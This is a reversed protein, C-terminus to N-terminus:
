DGTFLYTGVAHVLFAVGFVAYGWYQLVEVYPVFAGLVLMWVGGLYFPLRDRRSIREAKLVAGAVLFALGLLLLFHSFFYAGRVAGETNNAIIDGVSTWLAFLAAVFAGTVVRWDVGEVSDPRSRSVLRWQAGVIVGAMAFWMAVYGENPLDVVFSVNTAVATLGITVGYVLWMRRQGPYREDTVATAVLTAVVMWVVGLSLLAVVGVLLSVPSRVAFEAGTPVSVALVSLVAVASLALGAAMRGALDATPASLLARFQRYRGAEFDAALQQGFTNLCVIIAGFTGYSIATSGLVAPQVDAPIEALDVFVTITLLYFGVPFAISWFLVTKNRLLERVYRGFFSRSQGLWARWRGPVASTGTQLAGTDTAM